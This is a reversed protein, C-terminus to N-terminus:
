NGGKPNIKTNTLLLNILADLNGRKDDGTLHDIINKGIGSQDKAYKLYDGFDLNDKGYAIPKGTYLSKNMQTEIIGKLVPNLSGLLSLPNAVQQLDQSPNSLSKYRDMGPIKIGTEKQWDAGKEDANMGEKLRQVNMAYKPQEMLLQVQRPINNKTWNWFPVFARMTRDANTLENYNFLYERVQRAAMDPKSYKDLGNLFNALRSEDDFKEGGQKMKNIVKNNNVKKGVKELWTPKDFNHTPMSDMIFGGSVVNHKYALHMLDMQEKTLTGKKWGSLLKMARRYDGVKVGAAMNNFLNGVFNNFYHSPKYNTVLPRWIDSVASMHRMLKNMGQETFIDDTKKLAKLVDPHIYHEGKLGMKKLETPDLRKLGTKPETSMMGFKKFNTQMEKMSRARVGERVRRTLASMVNVDFLNSVKDIQEQLLAKQAPDKEKTLAKQLKYIYNDRDAITQFSKRARDFKNANSLGNLGLNKDAELIAKMEEDSKNLVHPFYNARLKELAGAAKDDSGLADLVKRMQGALGQAKASATWGEGKSKPAKGELHYIADKMDEDTVGNKKIYKEVDKLGKTYKATEGVRQSNADSIVDGMSNLFKDGTNLTRSNFINHKDLFHEFNTKGRNMVNQQEVFDMISRNGKNQNGVSHSVARVWEPENQVTEDVFRTANGVKGGSKAVANSTPGPLAKQVPGGLQMGDGLQHIPQFESNNPLGHLDRAMNDVQAGGHPMRKFDFIKSDPLDRLKGQQDKLKKTAQGLADDLVSFESKTLDETKAKGFMQQLVKEVTAGEVGHKALVEDALHKYQSGLAAESRHLINGKGYQGVMVNAKNSFPVGFGFSNINNNFAKTKAGEIAKTIEDYKKEVMRDALNPYKSYKKNLAELLPTKFEELNKFKGIIKLDGAHKVIESVEAAKGLKGAASLGGTMYTLPDALIDIGIGGGIKGWKNNVGLQDHMIDEGRKWGKDAGHLFGVGPINGWTFKGDTWDKWQEKAGHEIGRGIAGTGTVDQWLNFLDKATHGPKMLSKVDKIGHYVNDTVAGGLQGLTGSLVDFVNVKLGNGKKDKKKGTSFGLDVNWPTQNAHISRDVPKYGSQYGKYSSPPTYNQSGMLAMLEAITPQNAM